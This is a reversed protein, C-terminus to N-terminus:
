FKLGFSYSLNLGLTNQDASGLRDVIPSRAANGVLRDYKDYITAKWAPTIQYALSALAGVSKVGALARYPPLEGNVASEQPSIGFSERMYTGNALSLRPGLSFTFDNVPQVWDAALDAVLGQRGQLAQRLEGHFRLFNEIPWYEAYIGADLTPGFSHIGRLEPEDRHSRGDRIDAAPGFSFGRNDWVPWSFADDPAGFSAPEDARRIDFDSLVASFTMKSAGEYRPAAQVGGGLTVIWDPSPAAHQSFNLVKYPSADQALVPVCSFVVAIVVVLLGVIAPRIGAPMLEMRFSRRRGKEGGPLSGRINM